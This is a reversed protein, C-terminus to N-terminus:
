ATAQGVPAGVATATGPASAGAPATAAAIRKLLGAAASEDPTLSAAGVTTALLELKAKASFTVSGSQSDTGIADLVKTLYDLLTAGQDAPLAAAPTAASPDAVNTTTTASDTATTSQATAASAPLSLTPPAAAAPTGAASDGTTAAAPTPADGVSVLRLSASESLKLSVGAIETPDVNLASASAFAQAVNGSFFQTALTNVQGLVDNVAKLEDTSLSGQVSVTFRTNAYSSVAAYAAIGAAGTASAGVLSGGESSRFGIHVVSGDTTLLDIAGSETLRYDAALAGSGATPTTTAVPVTATAAPTSPTAPTASTAPPAPSVPASVPLAAAASAPTAVPPSATPTAPAPAAAAPAPAGAAQGALADLRDALANEFRAAYSQIADSSYGAASLAQGAQALASQVSALLGTVADPSTSNELANKLALAVDAVGGTPATAPVAATGSAPTAPGAGLAALIASSFARFAHHRGLTPSSSPDPSTSASSRWSAAVAVGASITTM